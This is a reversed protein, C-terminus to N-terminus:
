FNESKKAKAKVPIRDACVARSLPVTTPTVPDAIPRDYFNTGLKASERM